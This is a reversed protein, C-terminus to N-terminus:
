DKKLLKLVDAATATVDRGSSNALLDAVKAVTDEDTESAAGPVPVEEFERCIWARGEGIFELLEAWKVARGSFPRGSVYWKGFKRVAVYTYVKSDESRAFDAEFSHEFKIVSGDAPEGGFRAVVSVMGALKGMMVEIEDRMKSIGSMDMAYKEKPNNFQPVDETRITYHAWEHILAAMDLAERRPATVIKFAEDELLVVPEREPRTPDVSLVYATNKPVLPSTQITVDLAPRSAHDSPPRADGIYEPPVDFIRGLQERLATFDPKRPPPAARVELKDVMNQFFGYPSDIEV